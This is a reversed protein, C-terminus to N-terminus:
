RGGGSRGPRLARAADRSRRSAPERVRGGRLVEGGICEAHGDLFRDILLMIVPADTMTKPIDLTSSAIWTTNPTSVDVYGIRLWPSASVPDRASLAGYNLETRGNHFAHQPVIEPVALPLEVTLRVM